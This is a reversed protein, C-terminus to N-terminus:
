SGLAALDGYIEPRRTQLNFCRSRRRSDYADARLECIVMDDEIIETQSEAVIDGDPDFILIGGAHNAAPGAAGAQNCDVVFMGNDYARSTYYKLHCAKHRRVIDRQAQLDDSWEGFRAAHPMLYVEAGKVAAIRAVEPFMSDYCVGIGVTCPGIDVVSIRSGPRYHFYEDGSMHLKCQKGLYGRPGVLVQTNYVIGDHKEAIGFSIVMDLQRAVSALTQTTEGDPVAEAVDWVDGACWHGSIALEPLCVLQAGERAAEKCWQVAAERNPETQGVPANMQVAAVVLTQM